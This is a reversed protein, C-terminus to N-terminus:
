SINDASFSSSTSILADNKVFAAFDTLVVNILTLSDHFRHYFSVADNNNKIEDSLHMEDNSFFFSEKNYETFFNLNM